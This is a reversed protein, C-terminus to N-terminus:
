KVLFRKVKGVKRTGVRLLYVGPAAYSMDLEYFYGDGDNEIHNELLQQGLITYVSIRLPESFDTELLIRYLGDKNPDTVIKLEAENLIFDELDLTSDVINISYDHTTGYAMVSCPDNLDGSFSTDGARIRLLHQGLNANAPLDFDYSFSKNEEPIVESTILRESDEFVANDNLDIWMSFKEVNDEAFNTQVTVTFTKKSRDLNASGGIFDIYGSTCPIRENLYGELEFYFIGDGQSCDSGEPICDLNAISTTESDNSPDFDGPLLTRAKVTYRGSASFNATKSFTYTEVGGVELVGRFMEEVRPNNGIQYSVPINTQEEGGFNEIVISVAESTSLNEQTKPAAISTVGVDKPPLNKVVETIGDNGSNQDNELNTTINISFTQGEASLDATQNFTFEATSEAPITQTFVETVLPGGDISYSIEFNSQPNLGYNRIKIIIKESATLSADKPSLLAIVGLDNEETASFRFVGVKNLRRAGSFYEANHWFTLDDSPDISLHAYDGYRGSASPQPSEGKVITQEEITMIGLPDGMYRGTYRISPYIPKVPNDNVVTYGLAINGRKDIGISGCFRDSGDPAYTGEQYVTWPAGDAPQRLEYWRVGAHEAPGAAVDVVFNMVASNYGEFRRYQTMYMMAGQLADIDVDSGPQDLNKFGGGDFTATFPSVGNTLEQSEEITSNPPNTWNTNILWIKLHDQNVGAWDDDQLYIIPSNGPPPLDSGMVSFGAPSYFGNNEIGPLPFGIIKVGNDGALMKDRELVFVVQNEQPARPDKNTTIYYGDSWLSIKPYDPLSEIDFRYTYWGSNVPDPGQSVAILLAAPTESDGEPPLDDSFQMMIFRDAPEDYFVIPDGDTEDQFSGGISALSAPPVIQNGQKDWISFESNWANMYHNRGVAGTPDSPTALTNAGEFSLIPSKGPIDGMKKQIVPDGTKPLGKGPVIKNIGRNRPNYLKAKKSTPLLKAKSLPGSLIVNASDIFTPGAKERNQSFLNFQCLFALSLLLIYKKM